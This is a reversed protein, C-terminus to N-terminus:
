TYTHAGSGTVKLASALRTPTTAARRHTTNRRFSRIGFSFSSPLSALCCVSAAVATSYFIAFSLSSFFFTFCVQNKGAFIRTTKSQTPQQSFAVKNRIINKMTPGDLLVNPIPSKQFKTYKANANIPAHPSRQTLEHFYADNSLATKNYNKTNNLRSKPLLFLRLVAPAVYNTLYKFISLPHHKGVILISSLSCNKPMRERQRQNRENTREKGVSSLIHKTACCCRSPLTPSTTMVGGYQSFDIFSDITVTGCFNDRHYCYFIM